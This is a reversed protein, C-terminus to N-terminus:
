DDQPDNQHATRWKEHLAAASDPARQISSPPTTHLLSFHQGTLGLLLETEDLRILCLQNRTGLRRTELIQIRPQRKLPQLYGSRRALRALLLLLAIIVLLALVVRLLSFGDM